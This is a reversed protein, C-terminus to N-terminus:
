RLACIPVTDIHFEVLDTEGRQGEDLSFVSHFEILLQMLREHYEVQVEVQGFHDSSPASGGRSSRRHYM